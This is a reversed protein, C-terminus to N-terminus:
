AQDIEIRYTESDVNPLTITFTTGKKVSSVLDIKGDYNDILAKCITLGLGTGEVDDARFSYFPDYIRMINEPEIGIGTDEFKIFSKDGEAHCSVKLLGGDPMAHFANQIFNVIVMRIDSDAAMIRVEPSQLETEVKIKRQQADEHLLILVDTIAKNVSVLQPTDSAPQTLRLLRETVDICKNIENDVLELYEHIKNDDRNGSSFSRLTSQLAIRISSLPNRIEHAVGTALQCMTALKQEHSYKIQEALDRISEVIYKHKDSEGNIQMPAAVVEVYFSSGDKRVHQHVTKVATNGNGIERVPCTLLTAPCPKQNDHSSCYCKNNVVEDMGRQLQECYAKNAKIICYDEDIVRVGDPIADILSQLFQEKESIIQIDKELNIAMENFVKGLEAIEDQGNIKVRTDLKGASLQRSASVLESVPNLVFHRMFFWSAFVVILVVMGGSGMLMLTTKRAQDRIEVADYDVILVGNIPNNEILGHCQICEQKNHVPKISRLIESGSENLLFESSEETLNEANMCAPCKESTESILKKGLDSENHAFRVEGKPNLILVNSISSQEGLRSVIERLGPLDRKLMANELSVQLLQNVQSSAITREQELQGEYMRIFVVLFVLSVTLLCTITGLVFKRNLSSQIWQKM